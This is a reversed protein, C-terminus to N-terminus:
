VHPKRQRRTMWAIQYLALRDLVVQRNMETPFDLFASVMAMLTREAAKEGEILDPADYRDM